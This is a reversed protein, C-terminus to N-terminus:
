VRRKRFRAPLSGPVRARSQVPPCHSTRNAEIGLDLVEGCLLCRWGEVADPGSLEQLWITIMLGRCRPCRM